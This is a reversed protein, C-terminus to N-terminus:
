KNLVPCFTAARLVSTQDAYTHFVAVAVNLFFVTIYSSSDNVFYKLSFRTKM